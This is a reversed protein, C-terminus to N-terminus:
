KEEKWNGSTSPDIMSGVIMVDNPDFPAADTIEFVQVRAGSSRVIEGADVTYEVNDSFPVYRLEDIDGLPYKSNRTKLYDDSFIFDYAQVHNTDRVILGSDLAQAETMGDPTNGEAVLVDVTDHKLFDILTDMSGCFVKNQKKYALEIERLDKLNQIVAEYRVQKEKMFQIPEDISHFNAYGLFAALGLLGVSVILATKNSIKRLSNLLTVIGAIVITVGSILFISNQGTIAGFVLIVLGFSTIFSAPAFKSVSEKM